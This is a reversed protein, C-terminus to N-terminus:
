GVGAGRLLQVIFGEHLAVRLGLEFLVYLCGAAGIGLALATSWDTSAEYRLFAILFLPIALWFGVLLVGAVLGLVYGWVVLERRLQVAGAPVPEVAPAASRREEANTRSHARLEIALQLLCLAIAPLGVVLPQFRAGQPYTMAIGTLAIFIVLMVVTMVISRSRM